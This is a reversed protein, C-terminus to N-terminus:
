ELEDGQEGLLYQQTQAGQVLRADHMAVQLGLVDQQFIGGTRIELDNVKAGSGDFVL